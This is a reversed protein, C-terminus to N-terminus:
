CMQDMIIGEITGACAEYKVLLSYIRKAERKSTSIAKVEESSTKKSAKNYETCLITYAGNEKKLIYTELLKGAINKKKIKCIKDKM